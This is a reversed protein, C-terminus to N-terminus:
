RGGRGFQPPQSVVGKVQKLGAEEHDLGLGQRLRAWEVEYVEDTQEDRVQDDKQIDVPDCSLRFYVVEQTSAGGIVERGRSTSIHARVGSRVVEADPQADTPDREPDAPVRLVTIRTTAVPISL